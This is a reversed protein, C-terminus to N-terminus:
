PQKVSGVVNRIDQIANEDFGMDEGFEKSCIKVLEENSYKDGFCEV